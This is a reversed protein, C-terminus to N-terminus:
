IYTSTNRQWHDMAAAAPVPPMCNGICEATLFLASAPTHWHARPGSGRDPLTRHPRAHMFAAEGRSFVCLRLRQQLWLVAVCGSLRVGCGPPFRRLVSQVLVKRRGWAFLRRCM